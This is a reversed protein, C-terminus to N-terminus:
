LQFQKEIELESFVTAHVILFEEKTFINKSKTVFCDHTPPCFYIVDYNKFLFKKM